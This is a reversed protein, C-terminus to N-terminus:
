KHSDDELKVCKMIGASLSLSECSNLLFCNSKEINLELSSKGRWRQALVKFM